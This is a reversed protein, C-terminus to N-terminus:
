QILFFLHGVAAVWQRVGSVLRGPTAIVLAPRENRIARIQDGKSVGGYVCVTSMAPKVVDYTQCALERTPAVVLMRVHTGKGGAGKGGAGKGAKEKLIADLIPLSFALTKGSGTEAVGVVDRGMDLAPWCFRQIPTPATFGKCLHAVSPAVKSFDNYPALGEVGSVTVELGGDLLTRAGSGGL